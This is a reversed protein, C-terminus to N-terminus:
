HKNEVEEQFLTKWKKICKFDWIKRLKLSGRIIKPAKASDDVEMYGNLIPSQHNSPKLSHEKRVHNILVTYDYANTHLDPLM